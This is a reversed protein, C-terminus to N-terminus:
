TSYRSQFRTEHVKCNKIIIIIIHINIINKLRYHNKKNVFTKDFQRIIIIITMTNNFNNNKNNKNYKINVIDIDNTKM